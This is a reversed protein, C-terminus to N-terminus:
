DNIGLLLMAKEENMTRDAGGPNIQKFQEPTVWYGQGKLWVKLKKEGAGVHQPKALQRAMAEFRTLLERIPSAQDDPLQETLQEVETHLEENSREDRPPLQENFNKKKAM